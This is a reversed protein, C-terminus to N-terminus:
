REEIFDRNIFDEEYIYGIDMCVGNIHPKKSILICELGEQCKTETYPTLCVEGNGVYIEKDVDLNIEGANPLHSFSLFFFIIAIITIISFGIFIYFKDM